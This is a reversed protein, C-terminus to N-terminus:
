VNCLRKLLYLTNVDLKGKENLNILIDEAKRLNGDQFSKDFRLLEYYVFETITPSNAWLNFCLLSSFLVKSSFKM